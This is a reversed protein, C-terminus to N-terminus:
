IRFGLCILFEPIFFELCASNNPQPQPNSYGRVGLVRVGELGLGQLGLVTTLDTAHQKMHYVIYHRISM